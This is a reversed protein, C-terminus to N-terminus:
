AEGLQDGLGKVLPLAAEFCEAAAQHRGQRLYSEGLGFRVQAQGRINGLEEFAALAESLLAEGTPFDGRDLSIQGLGGLVNAEAARDGKGRLIPLARESPRRRTTSGGPRGTM